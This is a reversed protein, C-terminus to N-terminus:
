FFNQTRLLFFIIIKGHTLIFYVAFGHKAMHKNKVCPLSNVKGHALSFACPLAQNQQTGFFLVRCFISKGHTIKLGPTKTTACPLTARQQTGSLFCVAFLLVCPLCANERLPPISYTGQCVCSDQGAPTMSKRPLAVGMAKNDEPALQCASADHGCALV